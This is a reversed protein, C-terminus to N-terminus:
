ADARDCRSLWRLYEQNGSLELRRWLVPNDASQSAHCAIATRQRYRDVDIVIDLAAEPQGVFTTGHEANLRTAVGEPLAWALVPLHHRSAALVGAATARRHDPHGTIGGEDFVLLMEASGAATDVLHALEELPVEGLHGDPYALLTVDDIGLVAAAAALEETRVESLSHCDDGLTSAEGHTFCLVRVRTGLDTFAALVAGLGFSEDDPHACVVLVEKASPLADGWRSAIPM